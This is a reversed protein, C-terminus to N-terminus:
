GETKIADAVKRWSKQAKSVTGAGALGAMWDQRLKPFRPM